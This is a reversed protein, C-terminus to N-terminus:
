RRARGSQSRRSPPKPQSEPMPEKKKAAKAVDKEWQKLIAKVISAVTAWEELQKPYDRSLHREVDALVDRNVPAAGSSKGSSPNGVSACWLVPPEAWGRWAVAWRANGLLASALSLLPLAAYDATQSAGNIADDVFARAGDQFIGDM